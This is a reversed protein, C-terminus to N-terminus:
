INLIRIIPDNGRLKFGAAYVISKQSEDNFYTELDFTGDIDIAQYHTDKSLARSGYSSSIPVLNPKPTKNKFLIVENMNNFVLQEDNRERLLYESNINGLYVQKYTNLYYDSVQTVLLGNM